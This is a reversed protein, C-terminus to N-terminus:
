GDYASKKEIRCCCVHIIEDAATHKPRKTGYRNDSFVECMGGGCFLGGLLVIKM